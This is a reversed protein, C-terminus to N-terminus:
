ATGPPSTRTFRLGRRPVTDVATKGGLYRDAAIQDQLSHEEVEVGDASVRRPAQANEEIADQVDDPM